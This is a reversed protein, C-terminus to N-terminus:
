LGLLMAIARGQASTGCLTACEIGTWDPWELVSPRKKRGRQRRLGFLDHDSVFKDYEGELIAPRGNAYWECLPLQIGIKVFAMSAKHEDIDGLAPILRGESSLRAM